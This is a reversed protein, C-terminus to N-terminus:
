LLVIYFKPSFLCSNSAWLNSPLSNHLGLKGFCIATNSGISQRVAMSFIALAWSLPLHNWGKFHRIKLYWIFMENFIMYPPNDSTDKFCWKTYYTDKSLWHVGYAVISLRSCYIMKPWLRPNAKSSSGGLCYSMNGISEGLLPNEIPFVFITKLLDLDNSHSWTWVEVFEGEKVRFCGWMHCFVIRQPHNRWKYGGHIGCQKRRKKGVLIGRSPGRGM